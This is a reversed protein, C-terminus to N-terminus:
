VDHKRSLLFIIEGAKSEGLYGALLDMLLLLVEKKPKDKCCKYFLKATSEGFVDSIVAVADDHLYQSKDM